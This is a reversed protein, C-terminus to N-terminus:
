LWGSGRATQSVAAAGPAVAAHRCRGPRVGPGCVWWWRRPPLGNKIPTIGHWLPHCHRSRDQEMGAVAPQTPCMGGPELGLAQRDVRSSPVCRLPPDIGGRSALVRRRARSCCRGAGGAGAGEERGRLRGQPLRWLPFTAGWMARTALRPGVSAAGPLASAGRGALGRGAECAPAACPADREM